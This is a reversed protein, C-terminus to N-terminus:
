ICLLLPFLKQRLPIEPSFSFHLFYHNVTHTKLSIIFVTMYRHQTVGYTAPTTFRSVRRITAGNHTPELGVVRGM